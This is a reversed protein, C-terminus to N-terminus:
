INPSARRRRRRTQLSRKVKMRIRGKRHTSQPSVNIQIM